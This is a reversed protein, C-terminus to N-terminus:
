ADDPELYLEVRSHLREDLCSRHAGLYQKADSKPIQVTLQVFDDLDPNGYCFCCMLLDKETLAM